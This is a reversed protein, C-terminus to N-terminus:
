FIGIRKGPKLINACKKYGLPQPVWHFAQASMVFDYYEKEGNWNEFRTTYYKVNKNKFKRKGEAVLDEGPEICTVSLGKDVFLETAKGSGAGIELIKSGSTLKNKAILTTILESPYSPRYKDYYKAAEDFTKSQEIWKKEESM